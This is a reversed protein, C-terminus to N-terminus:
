MNVLRPCRSSGEHAQKLTTANLTTKVEIVYLCSDVPFLGLSEDMMASPALNKDFLIIDTQRSYQGDMDILQGTGIGIDPPLLPRFLERVLIERINGLTEQHPINDVAKSM